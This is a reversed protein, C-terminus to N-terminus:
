ATRQESLQWLRDASEPDLAHAAVGAADLGCAAPDDIV